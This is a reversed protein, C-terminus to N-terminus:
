SSLQKLQQHVKDYKEEFVGGPKISFQRVPLNGPRGSSSEKAPRWVKALGTAIYHYNNSNVSFDEIIYLKQPDM